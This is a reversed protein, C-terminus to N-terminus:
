EGLIKGGGFVRYAGLIRGLKWLLGFWPAQKRSGRWPAGGEWWSPFDAFRLTRQKYKAALVHGAKSFKYFSVSVVAFQMTKLLTAHFYLADGLPM